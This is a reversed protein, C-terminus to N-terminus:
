REPAEKKFGKARAYDILAHDVITSTPTRAYASLEKLWEKWAATGKITLVAARPGDGPDAPKTTQKRAMMSLEM